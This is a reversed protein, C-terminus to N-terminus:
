VRIKKLYSMETASPASYAINHPIVSFSVWSTHTASAARLLGRGASYRAHLHTKSNLTQDPSGEVRLSRLMCTHKSITKSFEETCARDKLGLSDEVRFGLGCVTFDPRLGPVKEVIVVNGVM